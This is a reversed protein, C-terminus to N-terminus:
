PYTPPVPFGDCVKATPCREATVRWGRESGNASFSRRTEVPHRAGWRLDLEVPGVDPDHQVKLKEDQSLFPPDLVWSTDATGSAPDTHCGSWTQHSEWKGTAKGGAGWGEGPYEYLRATAWGSLARLRIRRDSVCGAVDTKDEIRESVALTGKFPHRILLEGRENRILVSTDAIFRERRSHRVNPLVDVWWTEVQLKYWLRTPAKPSTAQLSAATAGVLVVLGTLLGIAVARRM